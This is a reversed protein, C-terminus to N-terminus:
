GPETVRNHVPSVYTPSTVKIVAFLPTEKIRAAFRRM